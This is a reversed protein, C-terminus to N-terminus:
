EKFRYYVKNGFRLDIYELTDFGERSLEEINLASSLNSLTQSLDHERAFLIRPGNETYLEVDMADTLALAVSAIQEEEKLMDIFFIIRQFESPTLFYDGVPDDDRVALSGDTNFLPGFFRKFVTGTFDPAEAYVFGDKDLFYCTENVAQFDAYTKGCWLVLPRRERITLTVARLGDSEVDARDIKKVQEVVAAEITREPYLFVNSKPFVFFYAGAINQEVINRLEEESVVSNGSVTIGAIRFADLRALTVGTGALVTILLGWLIVRILRRHRRRRTVQPSHSRRVPM